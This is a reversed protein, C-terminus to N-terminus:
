GMLDKMLEQGFEMGNKLPRTTEERRELVISDTPCKHACVGCGICLNTDVTVAKCFKNTAEETVKFQIADVPCRKACLGCAKCTEPTVSAQYNSSDVANLHGRLHYPRFQICHRMDCNCITDPGEELCSLGHVLGADAAMKLIELTEEKTIERALGNEVLYRGLQDFHLCVELPYPSDQYDPDMNHKTRCPCPSVTCYDFADVVELVDEFPLVQKTDELTENIPLSRLGKHRVKKTLDFWIDMKYANAYHALEKLPEDHEKRFFPMRFFMSYAGDMRYTVSHESITEYVLGRACLAKVKAKLLAPDMNKAAAIDELSTDTKPFGTLFGADEPTLYSTVMQKAVEIDKLPIYGPMEVYEIFKEYAEQDTM